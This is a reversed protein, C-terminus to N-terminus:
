CIDHKQRVDKHKWDQILSINANRTIKKGQRTRPSIGTKIIKQTQSLKCMSVDPRHRSKNDNYNNQKKKKQPLRTHVVRKSWIYFNDFPQPNDVELWNQNVYIKLWTWKLLLFLKMWPLLEQKGWAYTIPFDTEEHTWQVSVLLGFMPLMQFYESPAM